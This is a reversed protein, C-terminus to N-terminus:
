NKKQQEPHRTPPFQVYRMNFSKIVSFHQEEEEEGVSWRVM